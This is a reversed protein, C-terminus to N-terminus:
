RAVKEYVELTERACKEWSFRKARKLGYESMGIRTKEDTLAEEMRVRLDDEDEPNVMVGGAGVVEPLSSTDSTIVPCGCAMAELPPLGFGEYLSPYVFLSAGNYLFPLEEDPLYGLFRVSSKLDLDDVLKFITDYYWGRPGAILLPYEDRLRKELGYYSRILFEINKRPELTGVFLIYKQPLGRRGLFTKVSERELLRFRYNCGLYTIKIREEPYGTLTVLDRKTNESVVIIHKFDHIDKSLRKEFLKVREVPHKEPFLVITMDHVTSVEPVGFHMVPIFNTEHFLTIGRKSVLVNINFRRISYKLRYPIIRKFSARRALTVVKSPGSRIEPSIHTGYFYHYKNEFDVRNLSNVLNFVYQGVGTLPSLLPITNILINM